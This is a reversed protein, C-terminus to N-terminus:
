KSLQKLNSYVFILVQFQLIKATRMFPNAFLRIFETQIVFLAICLAVIQNEFIKSTSLDCAATMEM